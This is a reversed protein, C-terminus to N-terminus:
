RVGGALAQRFIERADDVGVPRPNNNLLRTVQAAAEAMSDLDGETVGLEALSAPLGCDRTLSRVAEIAGRAAEDTSAGGGGGGAAHGASSAASQRVPRLDAVGLAEAIAAYRSACAPRNFEMVYPLLMSNAVGHAVEFTGGLPYALAHVAATNVPGLCLGGYLSGLAMATRAEVNTGNKVAEVVNKGILRIGELAYIDVAPHAHVNTFAEVCHTLADLGTSATVGPPASVTLEPDVIAVDPILHGSVVGKKLHADVDTIVAIPTVESGTGSTTPLALLRPTRGGVKDIGVLEEIQQGSDCLVSLMKALDIASGGGIGIVCDPEFRHARERLRRVEAIPPEPVVDTIWEVADVSKEIASAIDSVHPRVAGDCVIVVRRAKALHEVVTSRTGVGFEITRPQRLRVPEIM